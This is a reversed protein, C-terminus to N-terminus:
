SYLLNGWVKLWVLMCYCGTRHGERYLRNVKLNDTPLNSKEEIWRLLSFTKMHVESHLQRRFALDLISNVENSSGLM